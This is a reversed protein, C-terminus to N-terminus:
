PLTGPPLRALLKARRDALYEPTVPIGPGSDLGEQLLAKLKRRAQQERAEELTKSIVEDPSSFQGTSLQEQIYEHAGETLNVQSVIM